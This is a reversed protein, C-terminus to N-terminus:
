LFITTIINICPSFKLEVKKRLLIVNESKLNGICVVSQENQVVMVVAICSDYIYTQTNFPLFSPIKHFNEKKIM